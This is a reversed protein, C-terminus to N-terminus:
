YSQFVGISEYKKVIFTFNYTNEDEECKISAMEIIRELSNIKDQEFDKNIRVEALNLAEEYSYSVRIDNKKIDEIKKINFFDFLNFTTEEVRKYNSYENDKALNFSTNFINIQYYIEKDTTIKELTESKPITVFVKDYTTGMILGSAQIQKNGMTGSILVDDKKVYQNKSVLNQGNYIYFVDVIGDKKAIIDGENLSDMGVYPEDYNHITVNIDNNNFSVNIYPYEPYKVRLEKSLKDFDLNCFDFFFLKRFSSRIKYDIEDNIPTERNFNVKNVRYLNIYLVSFLFLIGIILLFHKNIFNVVKSQISEIVKYKYNSKKIIQYSGGEVEFFVDDGDIELNNSIIRKSLKFFDDKNMKIKYIM